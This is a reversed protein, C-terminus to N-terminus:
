SSQYTNLFLSYNFMPNTGTVAVQFRVYRQYATGNVEYTQQTAGVATESWTGGVDSWDEMNNSTQMQLQCDPTTGSVAHVVVEASLQPMGSVDVPPTEITVVGTITERDKLTIQM